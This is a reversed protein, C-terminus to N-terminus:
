GGLQECLQTLKIVKNECIYCYNIMKNNRKVNLGSLTIFMEHM